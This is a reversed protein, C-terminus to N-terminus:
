VAEGVASENLHELWRGLSLVRYLYLHRRDDPPAQQAQDYLARAHALDVYGDLHQPEDFLLRRVLPAGHHLLGHRFGASLNGKRARWQVAPPLIGDLARRLIIRDWGDHRQQSGPLALCFALVRRDFFPTRPEVGQRAALLDFMEMVAPWSALDRRWRHLVDSPEPDPAPREPLAAALDPHLLPNPTAAPAGDRRQLWYTRERYTKLPTTLLARPRADPGAAVQHPALGFARAARLAERWYAGWRGEAALHTLAHWGRSDNFLTWRAEADAHRHAGVATALTTWDRARVLRSLFAVGHSVVTDGDSGDLLVRIGLRRCQQLTQWHFFANGGFYLQRGADLIADIDLFPGAEDARVFHPTLGGQAIVADMYRREDIEPHDGALSPYVVSFAHLAPQTGADRAVCTISSSDLGGSLMSGVPTISRTRRRVAETFVERFAGAYAEDSGLDLKQEPDPEWYTWTTLRGDGDLRLATARPLRLIGALTTEAPEALYDNADALFRAVLHRNVELPLPELAFLANIESACAFVSGPRLAYFFPRLGMPDRAAFLARTQRNWLAFAFDGILYEPCAKGWREYAALILASDPIECAPRDSLGCTRILEDRNDIRADAVLVYPGRALPQTEYRAEPTTRLLLHGLGAEDPRHWCAWGDPGRHAMTTAAQDLRRPQVPRGDLYRLAFFGSM